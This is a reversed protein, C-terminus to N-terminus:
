RRAQDNLLKNYQDETLVDKLRSNLVQQTQQEIEQLLKEATGQGGAGTLEARRREFYDQAFATMEERTASIADRVLDHQENGLSLKRSLQSLENEVMENKLAANREQRGTEYALMSEPGLIETLAQNEDATIEHPDVFVGELAMDNRRKISSEFFNQLKERQEQSIAVFREMEKLRQDIAFRGILLTEHSSPKVGQDVIKQKPDTITSNGAASAGNLQEPDTKLRALAISEDKESSSVPPPQNEIHKAYINDAHELTSIRELSRQLTRHQFYYGIALLIVSCTLFVHILIHKKPYETKM